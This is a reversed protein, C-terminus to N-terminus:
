QRSTGMALLGATNLKHKYQAREFSNRIWWLWERIPLVTIKIRVKFNEDCSKHFEIM